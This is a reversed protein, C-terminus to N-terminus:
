PCLRCCGLCPVIHCPLEDGSSKWGVDTDVARESCRCHLWSGDLTLFAMGLESRVQSPSSPTSAGGGAQARQVAEPGEGERAGRRARRCRLADDDWAKIAVSQGLVDPMCVAFRPRCAGPM